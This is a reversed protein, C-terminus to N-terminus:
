EEGGMKGIWKNGGIREKRLGKSGGPISVGEQETERAGGQQKNEGEEKKM